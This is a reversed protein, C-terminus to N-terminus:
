AAWTWVPEAGLDAIFAAHAAIEADTSGVRNKVNAPM